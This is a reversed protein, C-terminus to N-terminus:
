SCTGTLESARDGINKNCFRQRKPTAYGVNQTCLGDDCSRPNKSAMVIKKDVWNVLVQNAGCGGSRDPPWALQLCMWKESNASRNSKWGGVGVTTTTTYFDPCSVAIGDVASTAFYSGAILSLLILKATHM